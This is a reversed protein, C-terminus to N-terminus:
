LIQLSKQRQFYNLKLKKFIQHHIKTFNQGWCNFLIIQWLNGPFFNDFKKPSLFSVAELENHLPVSIIILHGNHYKSNPRLLYVINVQLTLNQHGLLLNQKSSGVWSNKELLNWLKHALYTWVIVKVKSEM